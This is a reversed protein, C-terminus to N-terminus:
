KKAGIDSSPSDSGVECFDSWGGVIKGAALLQSGMIRNKRTSLLCSSSDNRGISCDDVLIRNSCFAGGDLGYELM